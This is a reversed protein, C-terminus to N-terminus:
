QKGISIKKPTAPFLVQSADIDDADLEIIGIGFAQTLRELESLLDEDDIIRLTLFKSKLTNYSNKM